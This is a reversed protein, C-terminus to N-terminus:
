LLIQPQAVEVVAEVVALWLQQCITSWCGQHAAAGAEALAAALKAIITAATAAAKTCQWDVVKDVEVV